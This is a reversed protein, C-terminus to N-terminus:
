RTRALREAEDLWALAEHLTRERKPLGEPFVLALLKDRDVVHKGNSPAQSSSSSRERAGRQLPARRPRSSSVGHAHKRHAGLSAARTFTKGCEACVLQPTEGVAPTGTESM